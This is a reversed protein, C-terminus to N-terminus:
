SNGRTRYSSDTDLECSSTGNMNLRGNADEGVFNEKKSKRKKVPPRKRKQIGLCNAWLTEKKLLTNKRAANVVNSMSEFGGGSPSLSRAQEEFGFLM